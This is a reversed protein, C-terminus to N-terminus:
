PNGQAKGPVSNSSVFPKQPTSYTATWSNSAVDNYPSSATRIKFGGAVKDAHTGWTVANGDITLTDPPAGTWVFPGDANANGTFSGSTAGSTAPLNATCITKYAADSPTYGAQGFDFEVQNNYISFGPFIDATSLGTATYRTSGNLKLVCTAADRDILFEVYDNVSLTAGNDVLTGGPQFTDGSYGEIRLAYDSGSAAGAYILGISQDNGSGSITPGRFWAKFAWKGTAPIKVTAARHGYAASATTAYLNGKSYAVTASGGVSLPNLTAFNNTPTDPVADDSDLSVRTWDNSGAADNGLDATDSFDLWFGNTGYDLGSPAEPKWSGTAADVKGFSSPTLAAGDVFVVDALYGNFDRTSNWTNTGIRHETASNIFSWDTNAGPSTNRNDITFSTIEDGNVYLKLRSGDGATQDSVLCVHAWATADRFVATTSFVTLGASELFLVDSSTYYFTDANGSNTGADFLSHNGSSLKARKVWCSFTWTKRNGASGPTRSFYDASGDLRVSYPISYGAGGQSGLFEAFM